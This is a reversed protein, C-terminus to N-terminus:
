SKMAAWYTIKPFIRKLKELEAPVPQIDTSADQDLPIKTGKLDIFTVASMIPLEPFTAIPNKKLIIAKLNQLNGLALPISTIANHGVNLYELQQMASCWNLHTIGTRELSLHKLNHLQQLSDMFVRLSKEVVRGTVSLKELTMCSSFTNIFVNPDDIDLEKILPLYATKFRFTVPRQRVRFFLKELKSFNLLDEPVASVSDLCLVRLSSLTMLEGPVTIDHRYVHLEELNILNKWIASVCPQSIVLYRLSRLNGLEAPLELIPADRIALRELAPLQFFSPPLRNFKSYNFHAAKLRPLQHFLDPLEPVNFEIALEELAPHQFLAFVWNKLWHPNACLDGSILSTDAVSTDHFIAHTDDDTAYPLELTLSALSAQATDFTVAIFWLRAAGFYITLAPLGPRLNAQNTLFTLWTDVSVVSEDYEGGAELIKYQNM